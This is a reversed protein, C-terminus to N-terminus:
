VIVHTHEVLTRKKLVELQLIDGNRSVRLNRFTGYMTGEFTFLLFEPQQVSAVHGKKKM